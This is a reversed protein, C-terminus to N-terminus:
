SYEGPQADSSLEADDAGLVRNRTEITFSGGAPMVDRANVALNVLASDIEGADVFTDWLDSDVYHM